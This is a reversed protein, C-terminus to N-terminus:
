LGCEQKIQAIRKDIMKNYEGTAVEIKTPETWTLIGLAAGAPSISTLGEAMREAVNAKEQQLVRLDGQATACNVPAPHDLTHMVERQQMACGLCLAALIAALLITAKM